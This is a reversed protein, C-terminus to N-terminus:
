DSVPMDACRLAHRSRRLRDLRPRASSRTPPEAARRSRVAPPCRTLGVIFMMGGIDISGAARFLDDGLDPPANPDLNPIPPVRQVAIGLPTIGVVAQDIVFDLLDYVGVNPDGPQQDPNGLGTDYSIHGTIVDGIGVTGFPGFM